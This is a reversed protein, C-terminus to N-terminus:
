QSIAARIATMDPSEQTGIAAKIAAQQGNYNPNDPAYFNHSGITLSSGKAWDPRSRGLASQSTPNFFHTAGGTFDPEQGSTVSDVVKGVSQYQPSRKSIGALERGRTQWPEFQGQSLVVASPSKGFGGAVRNMIVHAIAAQGESPENAAEGIITRIMLDRDHDSIPM